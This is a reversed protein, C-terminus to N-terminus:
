RLGFKRRVLTYFDPLGVRALLVPAGGGRATVTGGADVVVPTRGDCSVLAAEQEEVLDVRVEEDPGAVM